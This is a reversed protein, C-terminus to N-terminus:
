NWAFEPEMKKFAARLVSDAWDGAYANIGVAKMVSIPVETQWSMKYGYQLYHDVRRMFEYDCDEPVSYTTVLVPHYRKGAGKLFFAFREHPYLQTSTGFSMWTGDPQVLKCVLARPRAETLEM